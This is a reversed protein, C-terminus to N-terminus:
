IDHELLFMLVGCQVLNVETGMHKPVEGKKLRALCPIAAARAIVQAANNIAYKKQDDKAEKVVKNPADDRFDMLEKGDEKYGYAFDSAYLKILRNAVWFDYGEEPLKKASSGFSKKFMKALAKNNTRDDNEELYLCAFNGKVPENNYTWDDSDWEFDPNVGQLLGAIVERDDKNADRMSVVESVAVELGLNLGQRYTLMLSGRRCTEKGSSDQQELMWEKGHARPVAAAYALVRILNEPLGQKELAKKFSTFHSNSEEYVWKYRENSELVEKLADRYTKAFEPDDQFTQIWTSGQGELVYQTLSAVTPDEDGSEGVIDLDKQCEELDEEANKKGVGLALAGAGTGCTMVWGSMLAIGMLIYRPTFIAGSKIMMWFRNLAQIPGRKMVRAFGVRKIEKLFSGASLNKRARDFGTKPGQPRKAVEALITFQPGDVSVLSFGDGAAMAVPATTQKPRRDATRHLFVAAAREVPALIYSGDTQAVLKVHQPAVGLAEPLVIDNAHPDSGLRIEADTFPGFKTGGFEATLQLYTELRKM